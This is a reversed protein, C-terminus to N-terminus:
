PSFYNPFLIEIKKFIKMKGISFDIKELLNKVQFFRNKLQFFRFKEFINEINKEFDNKEM